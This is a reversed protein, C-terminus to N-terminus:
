LDCAPAGILRETMPAQAYGSGIISVLTGARYIAGIGPKRSLRLLDPRASALPLFRLTSLWVAQGEAACPFHRRLTLLHLSSRSRPAPPCSQVRLLLFVRWAANLEPGVDQASFVLPAGNPRATARRQKPGGEYAPRCVRGGRTILAAM